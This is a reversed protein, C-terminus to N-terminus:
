SLIRCFFYDDSRLNSSHATHTGPLSGGSQVSTWQTSLWMMIILCSRWDVVADDVSLLELLNAIGALMALSCPSEGGGPGSAWCVSRIYGKQPILDFLPLSSSFISSMLVWHLLDWKPDFPFIHLVFKQLKELIMELAKRDPLPTTRATGLDLLCLFLDFSECLFTSLFWLRM